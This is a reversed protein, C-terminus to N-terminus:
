ALRCEATSRNLRISLWHARGLLRHGAAAIESLHPPLPDAPLETHRGAQRLDESFDIFDNRSIDGRDYALCTCAWAMLELANAVLTNHLIGFTSDEDLSRSNALHTAWQPAIARVRTAHELAENFFNAVPDDEHRSIHARMNIIM